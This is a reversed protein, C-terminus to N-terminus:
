RAPRTNAELYAELDSIRIRVLSGIKAVPVRRQDVLRRIMRVSTGTYAAAQEVTLFQPELPFTSM